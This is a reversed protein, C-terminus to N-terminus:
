QRVDRSSGHPDMLAPIFPVDFRIQDRRASPPITGSVQWGRDKLFKDLEDTALLDKLIADLTSHFDELLDGWTDGQVTIKLPECVGVWDGQGKRARFCQLPVNAQIVRIVRPTAM